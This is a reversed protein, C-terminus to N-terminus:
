GRKEIKHFLGTRKLAEQFTHPRQQFVPDSALYWKGHRYEFGSALLYSKCASTVVDLLLSTTKM